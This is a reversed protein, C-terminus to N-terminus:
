VQHLGVMRNANAEWKTLSKTGANMSYGTELLLLLSQLSASHKYEELTPTEASVNVQLDLLNSHLYQLDWHAGWVNLEGGLM